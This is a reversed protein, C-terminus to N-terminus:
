QGLWSPLGHVGLLTRLARITRAKHYEERSSPRNCEYARLSTKSPSCIYSGISLQKKIM